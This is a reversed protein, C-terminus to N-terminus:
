LRRVGAATGVLVESAYGIFLGSEVVGVITKLDKELGPGIQAFKADLLINGQESIIPGHKGTGQRLTVSQAGRLKLEREVHARAQPLVELPIPCVSLDSVIKSEDVIVLFTKCRAALVKEQFLAGGKGKILWKQSNVADAGDFGWNLVGSYASHLVQLGLSECRWASELSTPVVSLRLKETQIRRGIAELACDVTTGTGVGIIQGDQVLRAIEEAVKEKM